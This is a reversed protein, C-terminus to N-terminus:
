LGGRILRVSYPLNKLSLQGNGYIFDISRVTDGSTGQRPSSSWYRTEQNQIFPFINENISPFYCRREVLSALEKHNPLRWDNYGAFGTTNVVQVQQLAELWTFISVAGSDCATTNSSLGESCQKWMLSTKKDTVTGDSNNTYRSDPVTSTSINTNCIQAAFTSATMGFLWATFFIKIVYCKNM